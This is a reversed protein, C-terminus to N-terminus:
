ETLEPSVDGMLKLVEQAPLVKVFSKMPRKLVFVVKDGSPVASVLEWREQGMRTLTERTEDADIDEASFVQYDWAGIRAIDEQLWEYAEKSMETTSEKSDRYYAKIAEIKSSLQEDGADAPEESSGMKENYLAKLQDWRSASEEEDEAGFAVPQQFTVFSGAAVFCILLRHLKM